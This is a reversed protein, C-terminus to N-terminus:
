FCPCTYSHIGEFLNHEFIFHIKLFEGKLLFKESKLDWRNRGKSEMGDRGLVEQPSKSAALPQPKRKM